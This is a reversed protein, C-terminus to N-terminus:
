NDLFKEIASEEANKIYDLLEENQKILFNRFELKLRNIDRESFGIEHLLDRDNKILFMLLVIKRYEPISKFLDKFYNENNM